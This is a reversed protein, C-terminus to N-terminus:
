LTEEGEEEGGEDGGALDATLTKIQQPITGIMKKYQDINIQGNKLKDVLANKQKVLQDLKLRKQHEGSISKDATKVDKKTPEKEEPADFEDSGKEWDDQQDEEAESILNKKAKSALRSAVTAKNKTVFKYFDFEAM